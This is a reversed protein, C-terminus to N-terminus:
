LVISRVGILLDVVLDSAGVLQFYRFLILFLVTMNVEFLFLRLSNVNLTLVELLNFPM